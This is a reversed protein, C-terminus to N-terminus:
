ISISKVQMCTAVYMCVCMCEDNLMCIYCAYCAHLHEALISIDTVHSCTDIANMEVKIFENTCWIQQGVCSHSHM